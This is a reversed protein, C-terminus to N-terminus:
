RAPKSYQSHRTLCAVRAGAQGAEGPDTHTHETHLVVSWAPRGADFHWNQEATAAGTGHADTTFDLWVENEPNAYEPDVSPKGPGAAPDVEQQYHPGADDPLKGCPNLHLHAGYGRSPALGLATLRVVTTDDTEETSFLIKAGEPVAATDYTVADAGAAWSRFTGGSVEGPLLAAPASASPSPSPAAPAAVAASCAALALPAALIM